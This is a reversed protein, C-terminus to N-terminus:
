SPPRGPGDPANPRLAAAAVEFIGVSRDTGKVAFRGRAFEIDVAAAELLWAALRTGREIIQDGAAAMVVGAQRLSRGSHSGGGVPALETDGTIVSVRDLDVGFWEVILQAFSTEHGQGSSLTGVVVDIREDPRVTIVARERPAGTNLELYNSLGIGRYRGRRRAEARRAEFGKWDALAVAREMAATDDGSDYVPVMANRKHM